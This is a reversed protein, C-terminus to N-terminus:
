CVSVCLAVPSVLLNEQVANIEQRSLLTFSVQSSLAESSPILFGGTFSQGTFSAASATAASACSSDLSSAVSHHLRFRGLGFWGLAKTVVRVASEPGM